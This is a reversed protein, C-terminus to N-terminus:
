KAEEFMEKIDEDKKSEEFDLLEELNEGLRDLVKVVLEDYGFIYM